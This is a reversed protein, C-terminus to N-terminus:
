VNVSQKEKRMLLTQRYQEADPIDVFEVTKDFNQRIVSKIEDLSVRFFERRANVMNVRRDEFAKHLAAELKPADETFIMAHIDFDFPVSADGLEEIRETPDLRRTMGIKYVGEGFAGINSIVYVYGAKQNAARYDVDKIAKDLESLQATIEARKEALLEKEVFSMASGCLVIMVNKEKLESDWLNQLISPISKNNKCMYPFEDIILLRKNNGYPLELVSRFASEWDAFESIYQKAPIDEKLIQESFRALQVRDTSQTCSYFIHPKDKGFERLTETKGVRRRGYLVILQGKDENYKDHLFKLEAERGVFM